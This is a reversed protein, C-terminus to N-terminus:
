VDKALTMTGDYRKCYHVRVIPGLNEQGTHMRRRTNGMAEWVHLCLKWLPLTRCRWSRMASSTMAVRITPIMMKLDCAICPCSIVLM